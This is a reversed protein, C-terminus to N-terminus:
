QGRYSGFGWINGEHDRVTCVRGGDHQDTPAEIAEAGAAVAREFVQDVHDTVVYSSAMGTPRQSHVSDPRGASGLMVAGGEPWRLEAHGVVAPDDDTTYTAVEDFGVATLFRILAHADACNLTPWVTAPPADTM